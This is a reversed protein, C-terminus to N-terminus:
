AVIPMRRRTGIVVIGLLLGLMMGATPEPTVTGVLQPESPSTGYQWFVNRIHLAPDFLTPLGELTFVVQNQILANKGRVPPNGTAPNDGASTIGYELGAPSAPGALNEGPFLDHPGFIDLGSSSIGCRTLGSEKSYTSVFAWEGGVSGNPGTTGFLVSSHSGLVASTPKLSSVSGQIDFFVATLVDEPALVDAPSTNTLTVILSNGSTEFLATASLHGSSGSFLIPAAVTAQLCILM